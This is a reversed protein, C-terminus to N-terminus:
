IHKIVRKSAKWWHEGGAEDKWPTPGAINICSKLYIYLSFRTSSSASTYGSLKLIASQHLFTMSFWNAVVAWIEQTSPPLQSAGPACYFAREYQGPLNQGLCSEKRTKHVSYDYRAGLGRHGWQWIEKISYSFLKVNVKAITICAHNEACSWMISSVHILPLM